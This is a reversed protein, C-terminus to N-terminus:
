RWARPSNENPDSSFASIFRSICNAQGLVDGVQEYLPLARESAARAGEHDSRRLAVGRVASRLVSFGM